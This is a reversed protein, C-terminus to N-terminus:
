RVVLVSCPACAVVRSSVSGMVARETAQKGRSGVVVLDFGMGGAHDCIVDSPNGELVMTEAAIGKKSLLKKVGEMAGDVEARYLRTVTDCDIGIESFCLNPVVSVVTLSASFKGALEVAEFLARDAHDSGDHAVLIKKMRVEKEDVIIPVNYVLCFCDSLDKIWL